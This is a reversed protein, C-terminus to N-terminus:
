RINFETSYNQEQQKCDVITYVFIRFSSEGGGAAKSNIIVYYRGGNLKISYNGVGDVVAVEPANLRQMQNFANMFRIYANSVSDRNFIAPSYNLEEAKKRAKRKGYIGYMFLYSDHEVSFRFYNSLGTYFASDEPRYKFAYIYTGVDPRSSADYGMKYTVVGKVACQDQAASLCPPLLLCLALAFCKM